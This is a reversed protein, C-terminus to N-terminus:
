RGGTKAPTMAPRAAAVLPAFAEAFPEILAGTVTHQSPAIPDVGFTLRQPARTPIELTGFLWDWVSLYSGFNRDFHAPDASHHIQHHAPSLIIRGWVGTTALWIHSHQLHLITLVFVLLIVNRDAVLFAGHGHGFLYNLLGSTFGLTLALINAFKVADVPHLRFNTLPSLTQATHHTKHFAWLFPVRHSLYHDIWFGLEYALFLVVTDTGMRLLRPMAGIPAPGLVATLAHTVWGAVTAASLIMWGFLAGFMFLSFVFFGLDAKASATRHRGRPFLARRLVALRIPRGRRHRRLALIGGALVLACALSALSFTSGLSLLLNGLKGFSIAWLQALVAPAHISPM